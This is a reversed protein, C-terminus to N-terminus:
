GRVEQYYDQPLKISRQSDDENAYRMYPPYASPRKVLVKDMADHRREDKGSMYPKDFFESQHMKPNSLREIFADVDEQPIQMMDDHRKDRQNLTFGAWNEHGQNEAATLKSAQNNADNRSFEPYKKNPVKSPYPTPRNYEIDMPPDALDDIKYSTGMIGEDDEGLLRSRAFYGMASPHILEGKLFAKRKMDEFIQAYPDVDDLVPEPETEFFSPAPPLQSPEEIQKQEALIRNYEDAQEQTMGAYPDGHKARLNRLSAVAVDDALKPSKEKPEANPDNLNGMARQTNLQEKRGDQMLGLKHARYSKLFSWCIDFSYSM